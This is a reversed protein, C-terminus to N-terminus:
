RPKLRELAIDPRRESAIDYVTRGDKAAPRVDAGAALLAEMEQGNGYQAAIMLATQGLKNQLNVKAGLKVLALTM